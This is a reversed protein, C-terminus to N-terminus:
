DPSLIDRHKWYETNEEEIIVALDYRNQGVKGRVFTLGEERDHVYLNDSDDQYIRFPWHEIEQHGM